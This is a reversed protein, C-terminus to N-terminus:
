RKLTMTRSGETASSLGNCTADGSQAVRFDVDDMSESTAKEYVFCRYRDENSLAHIHDIKGVLYRSSGEKWAALCQLEEVSFSISFVRLTHPYLKM